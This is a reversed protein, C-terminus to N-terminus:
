LLHAPVGIRMPQYAYDAVSPKSKARKLTKLQRDKQDLRASVDRLNEDAIMLRATLSRNHTKLAEVSEHEAELAIRAAEIARAHHATHAAIAKQIRPEVQEMAEALQGRAREKQELAAELHQTRRGVAAELRTPVGAFDQELQDRRSTVSVLESQAKALTKTLETIALARATMEKAMQARTMKKIM